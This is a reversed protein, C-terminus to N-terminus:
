RGRTPPEQGVLCRLLTTKGSGNPGLIGWRQGRTIDFTLEAFLPRDYAKALHEARLVIDGTRDAAPFGM